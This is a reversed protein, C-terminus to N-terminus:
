FIFFGTSGTSLEVIQQIFARFFPHTPLSLLLFCLPLCVPSPLPTLGGSAEGAVLQPCWLSLSAHTDGKRVQTAVNQAGLSTSGTVAEKQGGALPDAFLM